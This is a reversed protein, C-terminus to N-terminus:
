VLRGKLDEIKDNLTKIAEILLGVTNGYAVSKFGDDGTVVLEPVIAEVEQAIVGVEKSISDIRNFMVGRLALTKELADPITVINEKLRADSSATLIVATLTGTSPNYTYGDDTTPTLNGTAASVFIPFRTANTTNDAAIAVAASYGSIGAVTMVGTSPQFSLRTSSTNLTAAVGSTATTLTVYHTTASSTQDVIAVDKSTWSLTGSANTTLVQNNSGDAAPLTWTVNSSITAPAQFAVWNSSDSDAFRLDTQAQLQANATIMLMGTGTPSLTINQDEAATVVATPAVNLAGVSPSGSLGGSVKRAM